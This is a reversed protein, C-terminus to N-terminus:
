DNGKLAPSPEQRAPERQLSSFAAEARDRATMSKQEHKTRSVTGTRRPVDASRGVRQGAGTQRSSAQIPGQVPVHKGGGNKVLRLELTLLRNRAKELAFEDELRASPREARIRYYAVKERAEEIQNKLESM